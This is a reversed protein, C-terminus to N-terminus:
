NATDPKSPYVHERFVLQQYLGVALAFSMAISFTVSSLNSVSDDM